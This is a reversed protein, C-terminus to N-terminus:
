QGAGRRTIKGTKRERKKIINEKKREERSHYTSQHAPKRTVGEYTRICQTQRQM